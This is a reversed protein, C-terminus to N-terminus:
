LIRAYSHSRFLKKFLFLAFLFTKNETDQHCNLIVDRCENIDSEIEILKGYSNFTELLREIDDNTFYKKFKPRKSVKIFEEILENSFLLQIK